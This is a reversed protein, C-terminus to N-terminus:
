FYGGLVVMGIQKAATITTEVAEQLSDGARIVLGGQAAFIPNTMLDVSPIIGTGAGAPVTMSSLQFNANTHYFLDVVRDVTDTSVCIISDVRADAALAALIQQAVTTDAPLATRTAFLPRSENLQALAM